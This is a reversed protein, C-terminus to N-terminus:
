GGDSALAFEVGVVILTSPPVIVCHNAGVLPATSKNRWSVVVPTDAAGGFQNHVNGEM